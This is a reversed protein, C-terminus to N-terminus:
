PADWEGPRAIAFQEATVIVVQIGEPLRALFREKLDAAAAMSTGTAVRVLLTDGPRAILADNM